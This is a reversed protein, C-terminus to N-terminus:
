SRCAAVFAAFLRDFNDSRGVFNEPHWQVSVLFRHGPHEMAENIGDPATASAVFGPPLDKVAQHHFSNVQRSTGLWGGLKTGPQITVQHSRYWRPGKQDHKIAGPVQSPIDQWLTGGCAAALVQHGRCIGLIPLDRQLAVRTLMLESIDREPTVEGNRPHPQEGYWQPDLDNGGTLLLGDARDLVEAAEAETQCFPLLVPIAGANQVSEFYGVPTYIWERKPNEHLIGGSLGILPKM